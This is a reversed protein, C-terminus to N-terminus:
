TQRCKRFQPYKKYFYDDLEEMVQDEDGKTWYEDHEPEYDKKTIKYPFDLGCKQCFWFTEIEKDNKDGELLIMGTGCRWCQKPPVDKLM